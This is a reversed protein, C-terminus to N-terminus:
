ASPLAAAASRFRERVALRYRRDAVALLGGLAMLLCGGWIWDVFPKAYIRVGWAGGSGVPEGLSVYRDGLIGAQISAETMVQGSARYARKQPTLVAITRGDRTVDITAVTADYNPGPRPAVGRFTYTDGAVEVSQGVDLRVDREIEYGKVLTVGAIFVAVGLHALLMGYWAPSNARLKAALGHQPAGKLRHLIAAVTSAVVWAALLLGVAIM